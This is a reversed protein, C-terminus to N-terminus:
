LVLTTEKAGSSVSALVQATAWALTVSDIRLNFPWHGWVGSQITIASSNPHPISLSTGDQLRLEFRVDSKEQFTELRAYNNFFVFGSQGDSRVAWRLDSDSQVKADPESFIMPAITDGFDNM